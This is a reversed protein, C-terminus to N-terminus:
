TLTRTLSTWLNTLGVSVSPISFLYFVISKETIKRLYKCNIGSAAMRSEELAFAYLGESAEKLSLRSFMGYM